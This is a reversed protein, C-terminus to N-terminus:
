PDVHSLHRVAHDLGQYSANTESPNGHLTLPRNCGNESDIHQLCIPIDGGLYFILQQMWVAWLQRYSWSWCPCRSSMMRQSLCQLVCSHILCVFHRRKQHRVQLKPLYTIILETFYLGTLHKLLYLM